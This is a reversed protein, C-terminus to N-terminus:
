WAYRLFAQINKATVPQGFCELLIKLHKIPIKKGARENLGEHIEQTSM